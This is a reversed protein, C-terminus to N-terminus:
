AQDHIRLEYLQRDTPTISVKRGFLMARNDQIHGAPFGFFVPVGIDQLRESIIEEASKGFPITNDNMDSMGGVIVAKCDEFLNSRLLNMMMRDIHYLYEDLDEMFIIKNKGSLQSRSGSLSYLISLNGGVLEGEIEGDSYKNFESNGFEYVMENGFIADKMSHVGEKSLKSSDAKIDIPMTANVSIELKLSM